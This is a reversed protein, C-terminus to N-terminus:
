SSCLYATTRIKNNM